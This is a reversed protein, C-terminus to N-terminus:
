QKGFTKGIIKSVDESFPGFQGLFSLSFPIFFSSIIYIFIYTYAHMKGCHYIFIINLHKTKQQYEGYLIRWKEIIEYENVKTNTHTHSLSLTHTHSNGGM